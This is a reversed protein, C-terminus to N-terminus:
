QDEPTPTELPKVQDIKGEWNKKSRPGYRITVRCYPEAIATVFGKEYTTEDGNYFTPALVASGITIM